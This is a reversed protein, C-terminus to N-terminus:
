NSGYVKRTVSYVLMASLMLVGAVFCLADHLGDEYGLRWMQSAPMLAIKRAVPKDEGSETPPKTGPFNVSDNIEDDM